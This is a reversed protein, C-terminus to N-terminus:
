FMGNWCASICVLLTISTHSGSLYVSPYLEPANLSTKLLQHTTGIQEVSRHFVRYTNM